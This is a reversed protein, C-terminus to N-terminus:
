MVVGKANAWSKFNDSQGFEMVNDVRIPRVQIGSYNLFEQILEHPQAHSTTPACWLMEVGDAHILLYDKHYAQSLAHAFDISLNRAANDGEPPTAADVASKDVACSTHGTDGGVDATGHDTDILEGNGLKTTVPSPREESQCQRSEQCSNVRSV